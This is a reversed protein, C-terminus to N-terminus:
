TQAFLLGCSSSILESIFLLNFSSLGPLDHPVKKHTYNTVEVLMSGNNEKCAVFTLARYKGKINQQYHQIQWTRESSGSDIFPIKPVKGM